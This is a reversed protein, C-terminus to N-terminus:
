SSWLARSHADWGVARFSPFKNVAVGSIEALKLAKGAVSQFMRKAPLCHTTAFESGQRRRRAEQAIRYAVLFQPSAEIRLADLEGERRRFDGSSM